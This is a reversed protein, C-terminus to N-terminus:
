STMPEIGVIEVLIFSLLFTKNKSDKNKISDPTSGSLTEAHCTESKM